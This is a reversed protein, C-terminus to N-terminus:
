SAGKARKPAAFNRAARDFELALIHERDRLSIIPPLENANNKVDKM